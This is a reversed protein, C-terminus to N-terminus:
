ILAWLMDAGNDVTWGPALQREHALREALLRSDALQHRAIHERWAAADPDDRGVLVPLLALVRGLPM